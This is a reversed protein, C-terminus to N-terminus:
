CSQWQRLMEKKKPGFWSPGGGRGAGAGPRASGPQFYLQELSYRDYEPL